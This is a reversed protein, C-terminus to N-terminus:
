SHFSATLRHAEFFIEISLRSDPIDTFEFDGHVSLPGSAVLDDTQDRTLVVLANFFDPPDEGHMTLRGTLNLMHDPATIKLDLDWEAGHFILHRTPPVDSMAGTSGDLIRDLILQLEM